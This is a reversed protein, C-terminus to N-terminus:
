ENESDNCDNQEKQWASYLTNYVAYYMEDIDRADAILDELDGPAGAYFMQDAASGYYKAHYIQAAHDQPDFGNYIMEVHRVMDYLNDGIISIVVNEGANSHSSLDFYGEEGSVEWDPFMKELREKTVRAM